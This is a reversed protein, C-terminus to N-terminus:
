QMLHQKAGNSIHDYSQELQAQLYEKSAFTENAVVCALSLLVLISEQATADKDTHLAATARILEDMKKRNPEM